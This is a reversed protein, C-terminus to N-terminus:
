CKTVIPHDYTHVFGYEDAFLLDGNTIPKGEWFHMVQTYFIKKEFCNFETWLRADPDGFGAVDDPNIMTRRVFPNFHNISDLIPEVHFVEIRWIDSHENADVVAKVRHYLEMVEEKTSGIIIEDTNINGDVEIDKEQLEAVLSRLYDKQQSNIRKSNMKGIVQQRFNKAHIFFQHAPIDKEDEVVSEIFEEWNDQLVIKLKKFVTFNASIIDLSIGYFDQGIKYPNTGHLGGAPNKQRKPRDWKKSNFEQWEPTDKIASLAKQEFWSIYQLVTQGNSNAYKKLNQFMRMFDMPGFSGPKGHTCHFQHLAEMKYTFADADNMLGKQIPIRAMRVMTSLEEFTCGNTVILSDPTIAMFNGMSGGPKITKSSVENEECYHHIARRTDNNGVLHTNSIRLNKQGVIVHEDIEAYVEELSTATSTVTERKRVYRKPAKKRIILGIIIRIIFAFITLWGIILLFRDFMPSIPQTTYYVMILNTRSFYTNYIDSKLCMVTKYYILKKIM